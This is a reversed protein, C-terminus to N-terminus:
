RPYADLHAAGGRRGGALCLLGDTYGALEESALGLRDASPSRLGHVREGDPWALKGDSILRCLRAYGGQTEALLTLREGDVLTIEAGIIPKLGQEQAERWFRVVGYLGNHDTLALAPYGLVVGRDVLAEPSSAGDLLSYYSHCHLEVYPCRDTM